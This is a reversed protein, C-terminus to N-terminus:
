FPSPSEDPHCSLAFIKTTRGKGLFKDSVQGASHLYRGLWQDEQTIPVTFAFESPAAAVPSVGLQLRGEPVMHTLVLRRWAQSESVHHRLSSLCRGVRQRSGSRTSRGTQLGIRVITTAQAMCALVGHVRAAIQSRPGVLRGRRHRDPAVSGEVLTHGPPSGPYSASPSSAGRRLTRIVGSRARLDRQRHPAFENPADALRAIGCGRLSPVANSAPVLAFIAFRIQTVASSIAYHPPSSM